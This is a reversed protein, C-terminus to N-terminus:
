RTEDRGATTDQHMPSPTHAADQTGPATAADLLRRARALVPADVMRGAITSVGGDGARLVRRAWAMETATPRLEATVVPVQAPHICLKGTFGVKRAARTDSAVRELDRVAGTVGDVPPTLCAAASALVLASRAGAMAERHDPDVGLEAALDFTGLALRAVAPTEALHAARAVGRATEVLAVLRSGGPLADALTNLQAADEAKPVMVVVPRGTTALAAMDKEHGPSGPPNVRVAMRAVDTDPANTLWDAVSTRAKQTAAAAVADELDLVVVAVGSGLASVYRDPRDGPVFLYTPGEHPTM